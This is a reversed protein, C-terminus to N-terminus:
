KSGKAPRYWDMQDVYPEFAEMLKPSPEVKGAMFLRLSAEKYGVKKCAESIKGFKKMLVEIARTRPKHALEEAPKKLRREKYDVPIQEAIAIHKHRGNNGGKKVKVIEDILFGWDEIQVGYELCKVMINKSPKMKGLNIRSITSAHIKSAKEFNSFSGFNEYIKKVALNKLNVYNYFMDKEKSITKKNKM